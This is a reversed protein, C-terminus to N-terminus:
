ALGSRPRGAHGVGGAALLPQHGWQSEALFYQIEKREQDHRYAISEANKREVDSM